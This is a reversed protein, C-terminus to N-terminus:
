HFIIGELPKPPGGAPAAFIGHAQRDGPAFIRLGCSQLAISGKQRSGYKGDGALPHKGPHLSCGSRIPAGPTCLSRPLATKGQRPLSAINWCQKGCGKRPRSVPFVRAKAATRSCGTGCPAKPPCHKTRGAQLSPGIGSSSSRASGAERRGQWGACRLREPEPHDSPQTRGCGRANQCLGDPRFCRHGVPAGGGCLRRARELAGAARRTRGGRQFTRRAQGAGCPAADEYLINVAQGRRDSGEAEPYGCHDQRGPDEGSM